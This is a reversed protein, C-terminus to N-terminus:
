ARVEAASAQEKWQQVKLELFMYAPALQEVKFANLYQGGGTTM